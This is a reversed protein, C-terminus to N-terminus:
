RIAQTQAILPLVREDIAAESGDLEVRFLHWRETHTVTEGPALRTLPGLTELELMDANTFVETNCGMDAYTAQPDCAYRKVFLVGDLHYAAWGLTNLVGFKQFSERTPDQQLQIYKSGWSWRPDAMDTYPWLVLPRAPLVQESHSKYPEQPVIARGGPAMVSLSWPALEVAWLGHNTLRHEVTVSAGDLSVRMVKGIGTTTEVSQTLTVTLDDGEVAVPHNDPFFTRPLVEPAHWLRHGGYPLWAADGTRGLQDEFTRFLNREGAFGLHLLRPGVETTAVLDLIGNSLKHAQAWGGYSVTAM